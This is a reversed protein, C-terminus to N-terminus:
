VPYATLFTPPHFNFTENLIQSRRPSGFSKLQIGRFVRLFFFFLIFMDIDISEVFAMLFFFVLFRVVENCFGGWPLILDTRWQLRNWITSSVSASESCRFFDTLRPFLVFLLLQCVDTYVLLKYNQSHYEMKWHHCKWTTGKDGPVEKSVECSTM